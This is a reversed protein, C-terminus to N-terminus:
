RPLSDDQSRYGFLDPRSTDRETEITCTAFCSQLARMMLRCLSMYRRQIEAVFSCVALRGGEDGGVAGARAGEGRGRRPGVAARM